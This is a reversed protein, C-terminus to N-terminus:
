HMSAAEQLFSDDLGSMDIQVAFNNPTGDVRTAFRFDSEWEHNRAVLTSFSQNYEDYLESLAFIVVPSVRYSIGARYSISGSIFM